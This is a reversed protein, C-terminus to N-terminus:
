RGIRSWQLRQAGRDTSSEPRNSRFV